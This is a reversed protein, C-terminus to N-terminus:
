TSRWHSNTSAISASIHVNDRGDTKAQYMAHDAASLLSNLDAGDQPHTSIGISSTVNATHRGLVYVPRLATLIKEAIRRVDESPLTDEILVVFEDGGLRGVVDGERVCAQIRAAVQQLLLDGMDHGFNDNVAKFHDLDIFLVSVASKKREARSLAQRLADMFMARNPLGTLEDHFARHHLEDHVRKREDINILASIVCEEGLYSIRQSSYQAWFPQGDADQLHLELNNVAGTSKLASILLDRDTGVVYFDRPDLTQLDTDHIKFQKLGHENAYVVAEDSSRVIIIPLPAFQLISKLQTEGQHLAEQTAESQIVLRRSFVYASSLFVAVVAAMVILILNTSKRAIYGLTYSFDDELPTLQKNIDHLKLLFIDQDVQSLSHAVTMQRIQLGVQIMEELHGDAETWIEIARSIEPIKRLYQFIFIMGHIDDPHVRGQLFGAYAVDLNPAPKELELRTTRDGQNVMLATLYATYDAEDSYLCYRSLAYIADKQGKSWLGEAEVYARVSSLLAISIAAFLFLGIVMTAFIWVIVILRRRKGEAPADGRLKTPSFFMM